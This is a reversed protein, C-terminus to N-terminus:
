NQHSVYSMNTITFSSQMQDQILYDQITYDQITHDQIHHDQIHHDQIHHDQIHHDQIHHDQIHYDQITYDQIVQVETYQYLGITLYFDYFGCNEWRIKKRELVIRLLVTMLSCTVGGRGWSRLLRM